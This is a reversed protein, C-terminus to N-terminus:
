HVTLSNRARAKACRKSCRTPSRQQTTNRHQCFREMYTPLRDLGTRKMFWLLILFLVLYPIGVNFFMQGIISIPEGDERAYLEWATSIAWLVYLVCGIPIVAKM